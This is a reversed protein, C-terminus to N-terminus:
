EINDKNERFMRKQVFFQGFKKEGVVDSVKNEESIIQQVFYDPIGTTPEIIIYRYKTGFPQESLNGLYGKQDKGGHYPLYGYKKQGYMEYLYAWM